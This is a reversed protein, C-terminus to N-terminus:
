SYEEVRHEVSSAMLQWINVEAKTRKLQKILPNEKTPLPVNAAPTTKNAPEQIRGCRTMVQVNNEAKPDLYWEVSMIERCEDNSINEIPPDQYTDEDDSAWIGCIDGQPLGSESNESPQPLHPM